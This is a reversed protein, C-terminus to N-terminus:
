AVDHALASTIEVDGEREALGERGFVRAVMELVWADHLVLADAHRGARINAEARVWLVATDIM